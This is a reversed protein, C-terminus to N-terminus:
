FNEWKPKSPTKRKMKKSPLHYATGYLDESSSELKKVYPEPLNNADRTTLKSIDEWRDPNGILERPTNLQALGKTFDRVGVPPASKRKRLADNILDVMHSGTVVRENVLLEGKDNWDLMRNSETMKRLIQAAKSKLAKPVSDLVERGIDEKLFTNRTSENQSPVPESDPLLRVTTPAKAKNDYTMFRQLIDAYRKTKSTEDLHSDALVKSLKEELEQVKTQETPQRQNTKVRNLEDPSVLVLKKTHEM